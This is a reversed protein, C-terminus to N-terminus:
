DSLRDHGLASYTLVQTAPLEPPDMERLASVLGWYGGTHDFPFRGLACTVLTLGLGWVDASYSYEEGPIPNLYHVLSSLLLLMSPAAFCTQGAWKLGSHPCPCACAGCIREPSMYTFTGVFTDARSVSSDLHRVLGFDSRM